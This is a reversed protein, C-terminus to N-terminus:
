FYSTPVQSTRVYDLRAWDAQAWDTGLGGMGTGLEGTGHRDMGLGSTGQEHIKFSHLFFIENRGLHFGKEENMWFECLPEKGNKM